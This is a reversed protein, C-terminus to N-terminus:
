ALWGILLSRPFSPAQGAGIWGAGDDAIDRGRAGARQRVGRRHGHRQRRIRIRYVDGRRARGLVVSRQRRRLAPRGGFGRPTWTIGDTSVLVTFSTPARDHYLDTFWTAGFSQLSQESGLNIILSESTDSDSFLYRTDGDNLWVTPTTTLLNADATAQGGNIPTLGYQSPELASSASVFSAGDSSLAVNPGAKAAGTVGALALCFATLLVDCRM